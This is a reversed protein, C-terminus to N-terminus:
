VSFLMRSSFHGRSADSGERERLALDFEGDVRVDDRKEINASRGADLGERVDHREVLYGVKEVVLALALHVSEWRQRFTAIRHLNALVQFFTFDRHVLISPIKIKARSFIHIVVSKFGGFTDADRCM